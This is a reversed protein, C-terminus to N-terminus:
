QRRMQSYSLVNEHAQLRRTPAPEIAFCHPASGEFYELTKIMRFYTRTAADSVQGDRRLLHDLYAPGDGRAGVYDQHVFWGAAQLAFIYGLEKRKDPTQPVISDADNVNAVEKFLHSRNRVAVGNKAVPSTDAGTQQGRYGVLIQDHLHDAPRDLIKEWRALFAGAILHHELHAIKTGWGMQPM